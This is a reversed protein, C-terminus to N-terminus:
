VKRALIFSGGVMLAVAIVCGLIGSDFNNENLLEGATIGCFLSLLILVVSVTIYVGKMVM